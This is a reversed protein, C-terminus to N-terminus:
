NKIEESVSEAKRKGSGARREGSEAEREGSEQLILTFNFVRMNMKRKM